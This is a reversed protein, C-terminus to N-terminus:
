ELDGAPDAQSALTKWAERKPEYEPPLYLELDEAVELWRLAGRFNRSAANARASALALAVVDEHGSDTSAPADGVPPELDMLPKGTVTYGARRALYPALHKGAVKAPPWWLASRAAVGTTAATRGRLYRPGWETLIAGRLVPQFPQAVVDAGALEAIATAAADAAQAAVGGQKIPFTTADGAAYVRELGLVGGFRDVPIFGRVNQPIGAITPVEPIPLSVVQDCDLRPGRMVELAGDEFRVPTTNLRVDIDAGALL